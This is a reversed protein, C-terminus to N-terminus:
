TLKRGIIRHIVALRKERINREAESLEESKDLTSEMADIEPRLEEISVSNDYDPDYGFFAMEEACVAEIYRIEVESLRGRYKAFNRRILPKGLNNWGKIREANAVTQDQKHFELMTPSYDVGLFTCIRKLEKEANALLDEYRLIAIKSAEKIHGYLSIGNAQDSKWVETGKRVGGPHSPSLKWSLVMDRPDRVQFLFKAKPYATLLFPTFAFTQNEKVFVRSKGHARAEARYVHAILAALSREEVDRLLGDATWKTKWTGLQFTLYDAVDTLLTRWNEDLTIDGYRLINNAFARILHSPAPGCFGPHSDFVKTILNSGSRESCILFTFDM